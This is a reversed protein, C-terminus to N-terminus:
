PNELDGLFITIKSYRTKLEHGLEKGKQQFFFIPNSSCCITNIDMFIKRMQQTSNKVEKSPTTVFINGSLTVYYSLLNSLLSKASIDYCIFMPCISLSVSTDQPFHLFGCLM